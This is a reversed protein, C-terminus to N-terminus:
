LNLIYNGSILVKQLSKNIENQKDTLNKPQCIYLQIPETNKYPIMMAVCVHLSVVLPLSHGYCVCQISLSDSTLLFRGWQSGTLHTKYSAACIQSLVLM